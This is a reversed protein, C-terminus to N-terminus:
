LRGEQELTWYRALGETHIVDDGEREVVHRRQLSASVPFEDTGRNTELPDLSVFPDRSRANGGHLGELDVSRVTLRIGVEFGGTLWSGRKDQAM